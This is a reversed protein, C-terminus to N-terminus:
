SAPLEPLPADASNKLAEIAAKWDRQISLSLDVNGPANYALLVQVQQPIDEPILLHIADIAYIAKLFEIRHIRAKELLKRATPELAGAIAAKVVREARELEAAAAAKDQRITDISSQAADRQDQLDVEAARAAKLGTAPPPKEGRAIADVVAAAHIERATSVGTAAEAIRGEIERLFSRARAAVNDVDDVATQAQKMRAVAERLACRPDDGGDNKRVAVLGM